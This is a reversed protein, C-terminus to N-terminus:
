VFTSLFVNCALPRIRFQINLTRLPSSQSELNEKAYSGSRYSFLVISFIKLFPKIPKNDYLMCNTYPSGADYM